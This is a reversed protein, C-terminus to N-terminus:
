KGLTTNFFIFAMLDVLMHHNIPQKSVLCLLQTAACTDNVNDRTFDNEVLGSATVMFMEIDM